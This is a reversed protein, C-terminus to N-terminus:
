ETTPDPSELPYGENFVDIGGLVSTISAYIPSYVVRTSMHAAANMQAQHRFFFECAKLVDEAKDLTRRANTLERRADTLEDSM